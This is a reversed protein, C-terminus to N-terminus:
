LRRLLWAIASLVISVILCTVLPFYFTSHRGRIVIDGPLKGLPVSNRELLSVVLGAVLLLAGLGLLMRGLSM